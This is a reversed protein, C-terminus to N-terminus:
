PDLNERLSIMEKSNSPNKQTLQDTHIRYYLLNERINEIKGYERLFNIELEYDEMMSPNESRIRYNGVKIICSKRYCLTSHNMFWEKPTKIFDEWLLETPHNTQSVYEKEKKNNDNTFLIMNSGCITCEPNERLYSLQTQIRHPLMIDDSDMKFIIENSCLLIGFHLSIRTGQNKEFKKYQVKTWRSTKKFHELEQKLSITNEENSGDNIWVIEMGFYGKQLQISTLCEKIYEINTNYSSILISVWEKPEILCKPLECNMTEYNNNATGWEQYAYVKKHGMYGSMNQETFHIPLFMYSPFVSFDKYKGSKLMDTLLGPGVSYWARFRNIKEHAESGRIWEIIDRCLPHYPVFGMTGTAILGERLIENEFTAFGKKELFFDDIPEICISDADVFVGGFKYLIEWRIIDAKGNIERMMEIERLCTLSMKEQIIKENWFIYEFDPHKEQWTKMMNIPALTEDGIWIQHIIKPIM